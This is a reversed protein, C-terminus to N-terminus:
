SGIVCCPETEIAYCHILWSLLWATILTSPQRGPLPRCTAGTHCLVVNLIAWRSPWLAWCFCWLTCWVGVTLWWRCCVLRLSSNMQLEEIKVNLILSSSRRSKPQKESVCDYLVSSTQTRTFYILEKGSIWLQCVHDTDGLPGGTGGSHWVCQEWYHQIGGHRGFRCLVLNHTQWWNNLNYLHLKLCHYSAKWRSEGTLYLM